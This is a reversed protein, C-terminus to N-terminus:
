LAFKVTLEALQEDCVAMKSRGEALLRTAEDLQGPLAQAEVADPALRRAEIDSLRLAVQDKIALAQATPAIAAVCADRAACVRSDSCPVERVAQVQAARPLSPSSASGNGRRFTDVAHVLARAEGKAPTGCGALTVSALVVLRAFTM